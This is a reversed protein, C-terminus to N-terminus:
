TVMHFNVMHRFNEISWTHGAFVVYGMQGYVYRVDSIYQICTTPILQSLHSHSLYDKSRGESRRRRRPRAVEVYLARGPGAAVGAAAGVGEDEERGVQANPSLGQASTGRTSTGDNELWVSKKKM